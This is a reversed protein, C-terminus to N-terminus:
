AMKGILENIAKGRYGATGGVQFPNKKGLREFGKRPPRLRFVPKLGPIDRLNAEFRLFASVFESISAFETTEKVYEDTLRKNGPLRGRKQLLLEVTSQDLEGWTVYDKVKQLMGKYAPSNDIVVCHNSKHLRMLMMTERIPRRASVRGRVLIVGLRAANPGAAIETMIENV